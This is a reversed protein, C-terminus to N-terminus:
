FFFFLQFFFSCEIEPFSDEEVKLRKGVPSSFSEEFGENKEAKEVKKQLSIDFIVKSHVKKGNHFEIVQRQLPNGNCLSQIQEPNNMKFEETSILKCLNEQQQPEEEKKTNKQKPPPLVQFVQLVVSFDGPIQQNSASDLLPLVFNSTQFFVDAKTQAIQTTETRFVSTSPQKQSISFSFFFTGKENFQASNLVLILNFTTKEM